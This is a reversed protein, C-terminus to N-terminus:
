QGSHCNPCLIQLNELRNNDRNGDVHHLELPIPDGFWKNLKCLECQHKKIGEKLLRLRLRHSTIRVGGFYDEIPRTPGFTQGKNWGKGTFHSIDVQHKAILKKVRLYGGGSEVKLGVTRLVGAISTSLPIAKLLQENTVKM